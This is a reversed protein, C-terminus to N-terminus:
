ESRMIQGEQTPSGSPRLLTPAAGQGTGPKCMLRTQVHTRSLSCSGGFGRSSIMRLSPPGALASRFTTPRPTSLRNLHHLNQLSGLPCQASHVLSDAARARGSGESPRDGFGWLGLARGFSRLLCLSLAVIQTDQKFFETAGCTASSVPLDRRRTKLSTVPSVRKSTGTGTM